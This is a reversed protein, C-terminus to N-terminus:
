RPGGIWEVCFFRGISSCDSFMECLGCGLVAKSRSFGQIPTVVSSGSFPLNSGNDPEHVKCLIDFASNHSEVPNQNTKRGM